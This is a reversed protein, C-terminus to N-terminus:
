GRRERAVSTKGVGSPGVIMVLSVSKLKELEKKHPIFNSVIQKLDAM